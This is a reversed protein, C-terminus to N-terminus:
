RAGGGKSCIAGLLGLLGMVIAGIRHVHHLPLRMGAWPSRGAVGCGAGRLGAASLISVAATLASLKLEENATGIRM